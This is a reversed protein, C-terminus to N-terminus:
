GAPQGAEDLLKQVFARFPEPLPWKTQLLEIKPRFENAIEPRVRQLARSMQALVVRAPVNQPLTACLQLAGFLMERENNLPMPSSETLRACRVALLQELRLLYDGARDGAPPAYWAPPTLGRTQVQETLRAALWKALEELASAPHVPDLPVSTAASGALNGIRVLRLHAKWPETKSVVHCVVIWSANSDCRLAYQSAAEDSWPAGSLVFAGAEAALMPVLTQVAAGTRFFMQEALYLPLARSMRGPGDALQLNPQDAANAIEASSGLFFVGPWGPQRPPAIEATHGLPHLWIPGIVTAMAVQLPQREAPQARVKNKAIETEWFALQPRFDPRGLVQLDEVLKEAAGIEGLDFHAKILNNGVWLGHVNARFRPEALLILERLLGCNGLDGSMQMLLDAPTPEGAREIAERYLAMAKEISQHALADRALWVQARWSAPLAAVRAMAAIAAPEGGRENHIAYFWGLGNGQNPDAELARWLTADAEVHRNQASYVKALNTLVSGNEGHDRLFGQLVREAKELRNTKTLVIGYVCAGRAPITDIRHLHEAAACVDDLFGDNLASLVISYLQDPDNWSKKLNGPLVRARWEERAIFLERGFEDYVRIKNADAAPEAKESEGSLPKEM